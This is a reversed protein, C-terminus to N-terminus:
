LASAFQEVTLGADRILSRLTGSAVPKAGHVPVSLAFPHGEKKMIHHSSCVRVVAFGFHSFAKIAESGTVRPLNAM